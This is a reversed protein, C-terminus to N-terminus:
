AVVAGLAARLEGPATTPTLHGAGAVVTLSGDALLTLAREAVSVPTETDDGGWVLHVPCRLRGLQAEYHEPVITVLVARMEGQAARYDASGHRQRAREMRAEGVIGLRHLRRVARFALAPPRRDARAVLPVGTLVLARVADPCADALQVAVRGGFSHGLLVVPSAMEDLVGAVLRAYERSGWAEPPPPSAGFGPLDLALSGPLSAGGPGEDERLVADFDHLTRAWGHLALIEPPGDGRVSGFLAGGAFSRLM